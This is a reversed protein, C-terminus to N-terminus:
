LLKALEPVKHALGRYFWSPNHVPAFPRAFGESPGFVRSSVFSPVIHHFRDFFLPLDFSQCISVRASDKYTVEELPELWACTPRMHQDLPDWGLTLPSKSNRITSTMDNRPRDITGQQSAALASSLYSCPLNELCRDEELEDRVWM